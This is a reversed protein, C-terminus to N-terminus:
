ERYRCPSLRTTGSYINLYTYIDPKYCLTETFGIEGLRGRIRRVDGLDLYNESYVCVVYRKKKQFATSVKASIGLEKGILAKFISGWVYDIENEDRYVLWKGVLIGTRLALDDLAEVSLPFRLEGIRIASRDDELQYDRDIIKSALEEDFHETGQQKRYPGLYPSYSIWPINTVKTPANKSIYCDICMDDIIHTTDRGCVECKM